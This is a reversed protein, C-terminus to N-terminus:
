RKNKKREEFLRDDERVHQRWLWMSIGFWGAAIVAWLAGYLGHGESLLGIGLGLAIFSMFLLGRWVWPSRTSRSGDPLRWLTPTESEEKM